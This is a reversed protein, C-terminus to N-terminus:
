VGELPVNNVVEALHHHMRYQTDLFERQMNADMAREMLSRSHHQGVETDRVQSFPQLQNPDGVLTLNKIGLSLIVPVAQELVCAAEDMIATDLSVRYSFPESRSHGIAIVAERTGDEMARLMRATSDVTCILVRTKTFIRFRTLDELRMLVRKVRSFGDSLIGVWKDLARLQRSMLKQARNGGNLRKFYNTKLVSELASAWRGAARGRNKQRELAKDTTGTASFSDAELELLRAVGPFNPLLHLERWSVAEAAQLNKSWGDRVNRWFVLEPDHRMRGAM